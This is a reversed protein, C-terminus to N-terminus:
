KEVGKDIKLRELFPPTQVYVLYQEIIFTSNIPIDDSHALTTIKQSKEEQRFYKEEESLNEKEYEQIVLSPSKKELLRGLNSM